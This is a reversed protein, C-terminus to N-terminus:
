YRRGRNTIFREADKEFEPNTSTAMLWIDSIEQETCKHSRLWDKFLNDFYVDQVAPISGNIWSMIYKSYHIGEVSTKKNEM